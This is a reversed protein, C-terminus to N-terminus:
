KFYRIVTKAKVQKDTYYKKFDDDRLINEDNSINSDTASQRKM